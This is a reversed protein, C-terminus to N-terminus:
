SPKCEVISSGFVALQQENPEDMTLLTSQNAASKYVNALFGGDGVNLGRADMFNNLLRRGEELVSKGDESLLPLNVITKYFKTKM